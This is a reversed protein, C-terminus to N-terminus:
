QGGGVWALGGQLKVGGLESCVTAGTSWQLACFASPADDEASYSPAYGEVIAWPSDQISADAMDSSWAHVPPSGPDTPEFGDEVELALTAHYSKLLLLSFRATSPVVVRVKAEYTIVCVVAHPHHVDIRMPVHPATDDGYAGWAVVPPEIGQAQLVIEVDDLSTQYQGFPVHDSADFGLHRALHRCEGIVQEEPTPVPRASMYVDGSPLVTIAPYSLQRVVSLTPGPEWAELAPDWESSANKNAVGTVRLFRQSVPDFTTAQLSASGSIDHSGSSTTDAIPDYEINGYSAGVATSIHIVGKVPDFVPNGFGHYSGLDLREDLAGTAPDVVVLAEPHERTVSWLTGTAPDVTLGAIPRDLNVLPHFQWTEEFDIAGLVPRGEVDVGTGALYRTWDPNARCAGSGDAEHTPACESCDTGRYGIDCLCRPYGTEDVCEGHDSCDLDTVACTPTCAGTGEVDVYGEACDRCGDGDYGKACVCTAEGSDDSCVRYGVCRVEATTCDPLCEDDGDNDQFGPACHSCYRGDYGQDCLCRDNECRGHFGCVSPDETCDIPIPVCAGSADAQEYGPECEDCASGEYGDDCVCSPAGGERVCTGHSGCDLTDGDGLDCANGADAPGQASASSDDGGCGVAAVLLAVGITGAASTWPTM